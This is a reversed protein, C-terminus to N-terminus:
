SACCTPTSAAPSCCWATRRRGQDDGGQDPGCGAHRGRTILDCAVMAGLGRIDGIRNGFATAQKKMETLREIMRKGIVNAREVLNEEEMVDLVANAAACGIPSGGYTGGLGGAAPADMIEAKGTVASLPFGGAM